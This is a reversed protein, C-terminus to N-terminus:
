TEPKERSYYVADNSATTVAAFGGQIGFGKIEKVVEKM